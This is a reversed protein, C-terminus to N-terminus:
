EHNAALTPAEIGDIAKVDRAAVGAKYDKASFGNEHNAALTPAKIGDIATVERAALGAKYDEPSFGGEHNAALKPAKVGQIAESVVPSMSLVPAASFVAPVM